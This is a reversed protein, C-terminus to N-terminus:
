RQHHHHGSGHLQKLSLSLLSPKHELILANNDDAMLYSSTTMGLPNKVYSNPLYKCNQHTKERLLTSFTHLPILQFIVIIIAHINKM